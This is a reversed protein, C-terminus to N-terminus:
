DEDRIVFPQREKRTFKVIRFGARYLDDRLHGARVLAVEHDMGIGTELFKAIIEDPTM